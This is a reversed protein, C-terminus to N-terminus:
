HFGAIFRDEELKMLNELIKQAAKEEKLNMMSSFGLSPIIFEMPM